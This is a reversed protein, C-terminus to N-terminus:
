RHSRSRSFHESIEKGAGTFLTLQIGNGLLLHINCIAPDEPRKQFRVSLHEQRDKDAMQKGNPLNKEMAPYLVLEEGISHRALEWTFQNRWRKKEDHSSANLIKNYAEELERHDDKIADSIKTMNVASTSNYRLFRHSNLGAVPHLRRRTINLFASM